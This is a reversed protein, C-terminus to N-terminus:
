KNLISADCCKLYLTYIEIFYIDDMICLNKPMNGSDCVNGMLKTIDVQRAAHM